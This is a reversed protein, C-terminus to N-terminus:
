EGAANSVSFCLIVSEYILPPCGLSALPATMPKNRTSRGTAPPPPTPQAIPARLAAAAQPLKDPGCGAPGWANLRSAASQSAVLNVTPLMGICSAQGKHNCGCGPALGPGTALSLRNQKHMVGGCSIDFVFVLNFM